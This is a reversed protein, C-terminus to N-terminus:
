VDQSDGWDQQFTQQLTTIVGQDALLIGLERNHDLSQTSINESGVFATRGDVTIMKAHMYLRADERVYAGGQKITAIGGANSDTGNVSPLIVQVQVGRRAANIIAQEVASDQMEEGEMLLTKQASNILATIDNHANVPSVVLNPDNFQAQTHDWDAQFIAQVAQVDTTNSDVIDYERNHFSGVGLASNTFNSTMIYVTTGDILMCKEHTLTFDPSTPQAKIGAARLRDLTKTPSASGSGYPHTELMVRVDLGRNAAEELAKIISHNTLLYMEVWVSVQASSIASILPQVGAAPEVFVSVGSM